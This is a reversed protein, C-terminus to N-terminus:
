AGAVYSNAYNKILENDEVEDNGNDDTGFSVGAIRPTNNAVSAYYTEKTFNGAKDFAVFHVNVDGDFINESNISVTWEYSSGSRYVGEVMKDDDDYGISNNDGYFTTKGSEITMNDIVQAIAFYVPTNTLTPLTGNVSITNSDVNAIRYITENIKCLGGPRVNEPISDVINIESNETSLATAKRWYMGDTDSSILNEEKDDIDYRNSEGAAGKDLMPDIVYIKGGVTRTFYMAIREFGSQNHGNKSDESFLGAITDNRNKEIKTRITDSTSLEEAEFTPAMNDYNIAISATNSAAPDSGDTAKLIFNIAGFNQTKLPLKLSYGKNGSVFEKETKEIEGVKGSLLDIEIQSIGSEDEVSSELCWGTGSIWTNAEYLKRRLETGGADYQVLMLEESQGFLPVNQDIDFTIIESLTSKNKKSVAYARVAITGSMNKNKNITLSWNTKSGADVPIGKGPTIPYGLDEMQREWNDEDFTGDYAPDIRLYVGDIESTLVHATGTIRITGGLIEGGKPYSFKLTPKDGNPIVNLCVSIADSVNGFTDTAKVWFYLPYNELEFEEIGYLEKIKENLVEEAFTISWGAFSNGETDEMQEYGSTPASKTTNFAYEVSKTKHADGTSGKITNSDSGYVPANDSQNTIIISPADNDINVQFTMGSSLGCKDTVDAKFTLYNDQIGGIDVSYVFYENNGVTYQGVIKSDLNVTSCELTTKEVDIGNADSAGFLLYIENENGGFIKDIFSSD